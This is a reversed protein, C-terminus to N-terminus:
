KRFGPRPPRRLDKRCEQADCDTVRNLRKRMWRVVRFYAPRRVRNRLEHPDRALDYLEQGGAMYRIYKYRGVRFGRYALNVAQTRPVIVKDRRPPLIVIPMARRSHRWTNRWYPRLSRGDVQYEPRAGALRMMTVPVDVNGVVERSVRGHRVGPGRVAMFPSSSAEYPLFKGWDYRHEGLFLGHDSLLFVYTNHLQGSRRLARMISGIGDDVSRLSELYRRYSRRLQRIERRDMRWPTLARILAPKDGFNRENFSPPRPLPTRAASGLHRTAPQPGRPRAVDGHPAQYDIQLFFPRHGHQRIERVAAATM